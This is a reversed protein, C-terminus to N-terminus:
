ISIRSSNYPELKSWLEKLLQEDFGSGTHGIYNLKDNNMVGLVLAGFYKRGGRPATFGCIIAEDTKHHKIKLWDTTRKGPFYKSDAKKAM